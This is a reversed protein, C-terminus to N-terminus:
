GDRETGSEPGSTRFTFGRNILAERLAKLGYFTRSKVTGPPVALLDAV